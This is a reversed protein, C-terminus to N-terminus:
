AQMNRELMPERRMLWRIQEVQRDIEAGPRATDEITPPQQPRAPLSEGVQRSHLQETDSHNYSSNVM